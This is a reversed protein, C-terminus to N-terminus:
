AIPEIFIKVNKHNEKIYKRIQHKEKVTAYTYHGLSFILIILLLVM